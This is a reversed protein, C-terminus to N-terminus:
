PRAPVALTLMSLYVRSKEDARRQAFYGRAAKRHFLWSDWAVSIWLSDRYKLMENTSKHDFRRERIFDTWKTISRV